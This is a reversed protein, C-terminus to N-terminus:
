MARSHLMDKNNNTVLYFYWYYFSWNQEQKETNITGKALLFTQKKNYEYFINERGWIYMSIVIFLLFYLIFNVNM